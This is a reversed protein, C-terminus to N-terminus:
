PKVRSRTTAQWEALVVVTGEGWERNPVSAANLKESELISGAFSGDLCGDEVPLTGFDVM